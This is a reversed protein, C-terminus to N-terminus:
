FKISNQAVLLKINAQLTKRTLNLQARNTANKQNGVFKVFVEVIDLLDLKVFTILFFSM